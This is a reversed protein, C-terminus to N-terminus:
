GQGGGGNKGYKIGLSHHIYLRYTPTGPFTSPVDM